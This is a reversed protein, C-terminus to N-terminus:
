QVRGFSCIVQQEVEAVITGGGGGCCGCIGFEYGCELSLMYEM